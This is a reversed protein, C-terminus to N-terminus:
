VQKFIIHKYIDIVTNELTHVSIIKSHVPIKILLSVTKLIPLLYRIRDEFALKQYSQIFKLINYLLLCIQVMINILM